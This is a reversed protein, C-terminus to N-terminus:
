IINDWLRVNKGLSKKGEPIRQFRTRENRRRWAHRLVCWNWGWHSWRCETNKRSLHSLKLRPLENGVNRFLCGCVEEHLSINRLTEVNPYSVLLNDRFTSYRNALSVVDYVVTVSSWFSLTKNRSIFITVHLVDSHKPTLTKLYV